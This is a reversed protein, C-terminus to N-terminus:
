PGCECAARRAAPITALFRQAGGRLRVALYQAKQPDNWGNVQACQDFYQIYEVWDGSGDYAEPMVAPRGFAPAVPAGGAGAVAGGAATMVAGPGGVAAAGGAVLPQHVNAAPANVGRGQQQQQQAM